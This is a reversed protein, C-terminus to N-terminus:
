DPPRQTLGAGPLVGRNRWLGPRGAVDPIVTVFRRAFWTRTADTWQFRVLGSTLAVYDCGALQARLRSQAAQTGFAEEQTRYHEDSELARYLPEGFPDAIVRGTADGDPLHDIAIGIVPPDAWFCAGTPVNRRIAGVAVTPYQTDNAVRVDKIAALAISAVVVVALLSVFARGGRRTRQAVLAAVSAGALISLAPLLFVSYQYYYVRTSLLMVIVLAVQIGWYRGATGGRLAQWLAVGVVAVLVAVAITAPAPFYRFQGWEFMNRVRDTVGILAGDRPDATPRRLQFVFVQQVFQTVGARVAFPASVLAFGAVASFIFILRDRLPRAFSAAALAPILLCAGYLKVFPVLGFLVGSVIVRSPRLPRDGPTLLAFAAGLAVLNLFPELMVDSEIRLAAPYIAYLSSAVLAATAGRWRLALVGVLFTNIAGIAAASWRAALFAGDLGVWHALGVFPTLVALVAPPHVFVFDRYPAYGEAFLGASTFYIGSDFEGNFASNPRLLMLIRLTFGAFAIGILAAAVTGRGTRRM